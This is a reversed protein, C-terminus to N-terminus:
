SPAQRQQQQQQHQFRRRRREASRSAARQHVILSLAWRMAHAEAATKTAGNKLQRCTQANLNTKGESARLKPAAENMAAENMMAMMMTMMTMMLM